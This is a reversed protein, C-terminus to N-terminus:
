IFPIFGMIKDIISGSKAEPGVSNSKVIKKGSMEWKEIKNDIFVIQIQHIPDSHRTNASTKKFTM